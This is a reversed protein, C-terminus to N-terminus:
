GDGPRTRRWARRRSGRGRLRSCGASLRRRRLARPGHSWARPRRHTRPEPPAAGRPRPFARACWSRAHGGRAPRVVPGVGHLSSRGGGSAALPSKPAPGSRHRACLVACLLHAVLPSHFSFSRRGSLSAFLVSFNRADFEM